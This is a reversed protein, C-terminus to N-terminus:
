GTSSCSQHISLPLSLIYDMDSIQAVSEKRRATQWLCTSDLCKMQLQHNNYLFQLIVRIIFCQSPSSRFRSHFYMANQCSMAHLQFSHVSGPFNKGLRRVGSLPESVLIFRPCVVYVWNASLWCHIGTVTISDPQNSRNLKILSV